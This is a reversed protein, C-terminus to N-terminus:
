NVSALRLAGRRVGSFMILKKIAEVVYGFNHAADDGGDFVM